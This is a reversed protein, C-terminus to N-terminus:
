QVTRWCLVRIGPRDAPAPVMPEGAISGAPRPRAVVADIRRRAGSPGFAEARLMVVGDSDRLPDGDGDDGDDAVWVVLYASNSAANEPLLTSLAARGFVHWVPRNATPAYIADSEAQRDAALKALDLVTGDPLRPAPDGDFFDSAAVTATAPVAGWDALSGLDGIARELAADAAYISTQALRHNGSTMSEITVVFVLAAAVTGLLATVMLVSLLAVGRQGAMRRAARSM